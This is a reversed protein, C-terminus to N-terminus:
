AEVPINKEKGKKGDIITAGFGGAAKGVGGFCFSGERGDRGGGGRTVLDCLKWRERGM